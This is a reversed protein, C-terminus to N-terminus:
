MEMLYPKMTLKVEEIRVSVATVNQSSAWPGLWAAVVAHVVPACEM